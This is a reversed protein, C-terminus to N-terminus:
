QSCCPRGLVSTVQMRVHQQIRAWGSSRHTCSQWRLMWTRLRELKRPHKKVPCCLNQCFSKLGLAGRQDLDQYHIEVAGRKGACPSVSVCLGHSRTITRNSAAEGDSKEHATMHTSHQQNLRETDLENQHLEAVCYDQFPMLRMFTENESEPGCLSLDRHQVDEAKEKTLETVM